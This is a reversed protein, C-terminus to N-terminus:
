WVPNRLKAVLVGTVLIALISVLLDSLPYELFFRPLLIAYVVASNVLMLGLWKALGVDPIHIENSSYDFIMLASILSVISPILFAMLLYFPNLSQSFAIAAILISPALSILFILVAKSLIFSQVDVPLTRLFEVNELNAIIRFNILSLISILPILTLSYDPYNVVMYINPTVIIFPMLITFIANKRSILKLDKKVMAVLYKGSSIARGSKKGVFEPDLVSEWVRGTSFKISLISFIFIFFLIEPKFFMSLDPLEQFRRMFFTLAIVVIVAGIASKSIGAKVKVGFAAFYLMAVAYGATIGAFVWLVSFLGFFVDKTILLIISPISFGFIGISDIFYVFLMKESFDVPLLRLPEFVRSSASIIISQTLTILSIAFSFVFIVSLAAYMDIAAMLSFFSGSLIAITLNKAVHKKLSFGKAMRKIKEESIQPNRKLNQYHIEKYVASLIENM